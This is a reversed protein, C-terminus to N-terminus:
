IYCFHVPLSHHIGTFGSDLKFYTMTLETTGRGQPVWREGEWNDIRFHADIIEKCKKIVLSM